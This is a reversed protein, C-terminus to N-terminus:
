RERGYFIYYLGMYIADQVHDGPPLKVGKTIQKFIPQLEKRKARWTNNSIEHIPLFAFKDEITQIVRLTKEAFKPKFSRSYVRYEEIVVASAFYNNWEGNDFQPKIKEIIKEAITQARKWDKGDKKTTHVIGFKELKINDGEIALVAWGTYQIGPDISLIKM